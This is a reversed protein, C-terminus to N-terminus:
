KKVLKLYTVTETNDHETRVRVIYLGSSLTSININSTNEFTALQRGNMDMVLIEVVEDTTGIVNVEGTAPDPMLRPGNSSNQITNSNSKASHHQNPTEERNRELLEPMPICYRLLCVEGDRCVLAYICAEEQNRDDIDLACLGTIIDTGNFYFDIVYLPTGWVALVNPFGNTNLQFRYYFDNVDSFEPVQYIDFEAYDEHCAVFDLDMGDLLDVAFEKTCYDCDSDILRFPVSTPNLTTVVLDIEFHDCEGAPISVDPYTSVIEFGNGLEFLPELSKFCKESETNNCVEVTIYYHMRCENDIGFTYGYTIVIDQCKCSADDELRLQRSHATCGDFYDVDLDYGGIGQLPLWLPHFVGVDSAIEDGDYYWFWKFQQFYPLM